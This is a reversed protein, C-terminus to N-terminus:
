WVRYPEVIDSSGGLPFALVREVATFGGSGATKSGGAVAAGPAGPVIFRGPNAGCVGGRM